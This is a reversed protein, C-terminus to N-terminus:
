DKVQEALNSLGFVIAEAEERTADPTFEFVGDKATRTIMPAALWRSEIRKPDDPDPIFEAYIAIRKGRNASTFQELLMSGRREFKVVIGFGGPLDVIKASDILGESLFPTEQVTLKMPASRLVSVQQATDSRGPLTELHLRLASVIKNRKSEASACGSTFGLAATLGLVALCLILNFRVGRIVM